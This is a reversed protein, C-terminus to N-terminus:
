LGIPPCQSGMIRSGYTLSNSHHTVTGLWYTELTSLTINGHRTGTTGVTSKTKFITVMPVYELMPHHILEYLKM